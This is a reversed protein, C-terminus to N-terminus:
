HAGQSSMVSSYSFNQRVAGGYSPPCCGSKPPTLVDLFDANRDFTRRPGPCIFMTRYNIRQNDAPIRPAGRQGRPFRMDADISTKVHRVHSLRSLVSTENPANMLLSMQPPNTSALFANFSSNTRRAESVSGIAIGGVFGILLAITLYSTWRLHFSVWFWYWAVRVIRSTV